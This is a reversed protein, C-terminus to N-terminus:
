NAFAKSFDIKNPVIVYVDHHTKITIMQQNKFTFIWLFKGFKLQIWWNM